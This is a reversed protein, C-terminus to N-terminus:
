RYFHSISELPSDIVGVCERAFLEFAKLILVLLNAMKFVSWCRGLYWDPGPLRPLMALLSAVATLVLLVVFVIQTSLDDVNQIIQTMFFEISVIVYSVTLSRGVWTYTKAPAYVVVASQMVDFHFLAFLNLCFLVLFLWLFVADGRIAKILCLSCQSPIWLTLIPIVFCKSYSWFYRCGISIRHYHFYYVAFSYGVGVILLYAVLLCVSAILCPERATLDAGLM